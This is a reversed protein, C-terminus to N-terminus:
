ELRRLSPLLMAMALVFIVVITGGAVVATGVGIVDALAGVPLVGMPMLAFTIMYISMVRGMMRPPVTAQILTTNLTMYGTGAAGVAVMITMSLAYSQSLGFGVLTIGFALALAFLLRGKRRFDGLSAISLSAALAGVGAAAILTGYGFEGVGLVEDAFVPLLMMYPLGFVLPVFAMALLTLILSSHRMYSLGEALDARIARALTASRSQGSFSPRLPAFGPEEVRKTPTMMSLAIAAAIYFGVVIFFVGASGIIILLAGAITPAVVRTVNMATSNLSIANLLQRRPVLEPIIAQRAPGDFVFFLGTAAGAAVLHWFQIADAAVLIAIVLTVSAQCTQTIILLNRKPVRDAIAGGILSFLLMPVGFAFSVIGISFASETMEWVLWGRAIINMQMGAFGTLLALWYRLYNPDRLSTFTTIKPPPSAAVELQAEGLPVPRRGEPVSDNNEGSNM